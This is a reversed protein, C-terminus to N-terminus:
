RVDVEHVDDVQEQDLGESQPPTAPQDPVVTWAFALAGGIISLTAGLMFGGLNSTVFSVVATLVALLGYLKNQSPSMWMLLALIMLIAGVAAAISVNPSVLIIRWAALPIVTIITGGVLTFVGGWFPRSRRWHRFRQRMSAKPEHRQEQQDDSTEAGEGLIWDNDSM